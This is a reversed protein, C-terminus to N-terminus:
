ENREYKISKYLDITKISNVDGILVSVPVNLHEEYNEDMNFRANAVFIHKGELKINFELANVYYKFYYVNYKSVAINKKTSVVTNFIPNLKKIFDSQSQTDCRITLSISTANNLFTVMLPLTDYALAYKLLEDMKTNLIETYLEYVDDNPFLIELPNIHVRELLIKRLENDSKELLEINLNSFNAKIYKFMALDLDVVFDFDVLIKNYIKDAM